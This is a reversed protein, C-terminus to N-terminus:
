GRNGESGGPKFHGDKLIHSRNLDQSTRKVANGLDDRWTKKETEVREGCELVANAVQRGLTLAWDGESFDSLGKQGLQKRIRGDKCAHRWETWFEAVVPADEPLDPDAIERLRSKAGEVFAVIAKSSFNISSGASCLDLLEILCYRSELFGPSLVAV